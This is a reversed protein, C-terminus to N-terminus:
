ATRALRRYVTARHVGGIRAVDVMSVGLARLRRAKDDFKAPARRIQNEYRAVDILLYLKRGFADTDVAKIHGLSAWKRILAPNKGFLEAAQQTTILSHIGGTTYATM